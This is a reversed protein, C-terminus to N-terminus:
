KLHHLCYVGVPCIEHRIIEKPLYETQSHDSGDRAPLLAARPDQPPLRHLAECHQQLQFRCSAPRKLLHLVLLLIRRQRLLGSRPFDGPPGSVHADSSPTLLLHSYIVPESCSFLSLVLWASVSHTRLVFYWHEILTLTKIFVRLPKTPTRAIDTNQLFLGTNHYILTLTRVFCFLHRSLATDTNHCLIKCFNINWCLLM